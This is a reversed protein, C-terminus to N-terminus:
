GDGPETRTHSWWPLLDYRNFSGVMREHTSAPVNHTQRKFAVDPNCLVSIVEFDYGFAAAALAYPSIEAVSLNTNDIIINKEGSALVDLTKKFTKAHAEGLKAPVFNYRGNEMMEDDTSIIVASVGNARATIEEALDRAFTSKGCGPFGRLAILRM